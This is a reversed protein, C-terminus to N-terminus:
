ILCTGCNNLIVHGSIYSKACWIPVPKRTVNTGPVYYNDVEGDVIPDNDDDRLDDEELGDFVYLEEDTCDNCTISGSVNSDISEEDDLCPMNGNSLNDYVSNTDDEVNGNDGIGDNGDSMIDGRWPSFTCKEGKVKSHKRCVVTSCGM